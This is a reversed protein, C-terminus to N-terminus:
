YTVNLRYIAIKSGISSENGYSSEAYSTPQLFDVGSATYHVVATGQTGSKSDEQGFFDGNDAGGAGAYDAYWIRTYVHYSSSSSSAKAQIYANDNPFQTGYDYYNELNVGNTQLSQTKSQTCSVSDTYTPAALVTATLVSAFASIALVTSIKKLIKM